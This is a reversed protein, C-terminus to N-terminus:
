AALDAFGRTQWLRMVRKANQRTLRRYLQVLSLAQRLDSAVATMPSMVIAKFAEVSVDAARCAITLVQGTEDTLARHTTSVDLGTQKSLAHFFEIPRNNLAYRLVVTENLGGSKALQEIRLEVQSKGKGKIKTRLSGIVQDLKRNDADTLRSQISHRIKCSVHDLLGLLIDKPVDDREILVTQLEACDKARDVACNYSAADLAASQNRLLSELVGDDGLDVLVAALRAGIDMRRTIALLHSQGQKFAIRVLDDQTLVPSHELVPRAVPIDDEALRVILGHPAHLEAAIRRALEERVQRELAYALREMIAGFQGKQPESYVAPDAMFVDTIGRLLAHRREADKDHALDALQRLKYLPDAM